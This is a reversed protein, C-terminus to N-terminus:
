KRRLVTVEPGNPIQYIEAPIKNPFTTIEWVPSSTVPEAQRDENIIFLADAAAAEEKSTAPRGLTYLFYRYNMGDLDGSDSFLVINFKEGSSVRSAISEAVLRMDSIQWGAPNIPWNQWNYFAFWAVFMVALTKTLFHTRWLTTLALGYFLFVAPFLYAVYHSYVNHGYISTGLISVLIMALVLLGGLKFKTSTTHRYWWAFIVSSFILLWTNLTRYQGIFMDFMLHMGRGHTERIVRLWTPGLLPNSEHYLGESSFVLKEFAKANLFDHKLDFLVLPLLSIGLLLLLGVGTKVMQLLQKKKTRVQWTQYLYTAGVPIFVLLAMYHLQTLIVLWIGLWLWHRREGQWVKFLSYLTLLGFLPEPNPNWSFRTYTIPVAAIAYLATAALAPVTGVLQRGLRFLLYLTLIGLAAVAFAPGVPNPYTLWLWPVMFYYYLPGLYLNGISTVPGIFVLDGEKFIKSVLLADRGQDGLFQQSAELNVLRLWSGVVLSALLVWSVLKQKHM